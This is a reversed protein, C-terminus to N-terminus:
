QAIEVSRNKAWAAEDHGPAAPREEGYSVVSIQADTAGVSKLARAVSLARREGLAINYEASGREDAHGELRVKASPTSSLYRGYNDVVTQGASDIDIQDFAFYITKSDLSYAGAAGTGSGIASGAGVGDAGSGSTSIGSSDYAGPNTGADKNGKSACGALTLGALAAILVLNKKM